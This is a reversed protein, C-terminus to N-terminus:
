SGLGLMQNHMRGGSVSWGAHYFGCMRALRNRSLRRIDEPSALRPIEGRAAM